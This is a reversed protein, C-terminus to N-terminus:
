VHSLVGGQNVVLKWIKSTGSVTGILLTMDGADDLAITNNTGDFINAVTITVTGGDTKLCLKLLQGDYTPAAVSRTEATASVIQVSGTKTVPIAGSAGPDTIPPLAGGYIATPVDFRVAKESTKKMKGTSTVRFGM